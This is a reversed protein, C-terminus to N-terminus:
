ESTQAAVLESHPESPADGGLNFSSNALNSVLNDFRQQHAQVEDRLREIEKDKEIERYAFEEVEERSACGVLRAATRLCDSCVVVDIVGVTEGFDNKLLTEGIFDVFGGETFQAMCCICGNSEPKDKWFFDAM